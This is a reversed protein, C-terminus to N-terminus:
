LEKILPYVKGKILFGHHLLRAQVQAPLQYQWREKAATELLRARDKRGLGPKILKNDGMLAHVAPTFPLVSTKFLKEPLEGRAVLKGTFSELVTFRHHVQGLHYDAPLHSFMVVSHSTPLKSVAHALQLYPIIPNTAFWGFHIRRDTKQWEAIQRSAPSRLMALISFHERRVDTLNRRYDPPIWSGYDAYYVVMAGDEPFANVFVDRWRVLDDLVERAVQQTIPLESNRQRNRVLTSLNILLTDAVLVGGQLHNTIADIALTTGFGYDAPETSPQASPTEPPDDDKPEFEVNEAM